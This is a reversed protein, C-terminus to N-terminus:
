QVPHPTSLAKDYLGVSKPEQGTHRHDVPDDFEKLNPIAAAYDRNQAPTPTQALLSRIFLTRTRTATHVADKTANTDPGSASAVITFGATLQAHSPPNTQSGTALAQTTGAGAGGGGGGPGTVIHM